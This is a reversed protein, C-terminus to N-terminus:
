ENNPDLQVIIENNKHQKYITVVLLGENYSTIVDEFSFHFPIPITRKFKGILRENHLLKEQPVPYPYLIEGQVIIQTGEQTLHLPHDKTLGPLEIVIVAQEETEFFDYSPGRKPIVHHMDNWFDEGLVKEVNESFAEWDLKASKKKM